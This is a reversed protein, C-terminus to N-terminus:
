SPFFVLAPRWSRDRGVRRGQSKPIPRLILTKARFKRASGTENHFAFLRMKFARRCDRDRVSCIRMQFQSRVQVLLRNDSQLIERVKQM